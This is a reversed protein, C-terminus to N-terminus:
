LKVLTVRRNEARGEETENDAIPKAQGFGSVALREAAIGKEHLARAVSRARQLSLELNAWPLGQDDTHGEIRLKLSPDSRLMETIEELVAFSELRIDARGTDFSVKVTVQGATQLQDALSGNEVEQQMDQIELVWLRYSQGDAYANVVIWIEKGREHYEITATRGTAFEDNYGDLVVKAGRTSLARIYNRVIQLESPSTKEENIEYAIYTLFGEKRDLKGDPLPIVVENHNSKYEAIYFDKMRSVLPHDHGGGVDEEAFVHNVILIWALVLFVVTKKLIVGEQM